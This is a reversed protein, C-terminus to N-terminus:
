IFGLSDLDNSYDLYSDPTEMAAFDTESFAASYEETPQDEFSQWDMEGFEGQVSNSNLDAIFVEEGYELGVETENPTWGAYPNTEADGIPIMIDDGAYIENADTIQPNLAMLDGISTNHAAAIESLTDGPQIHYSDAGLSEPGFGEFVHNSCYSVYDNPEALEVQDNSFFSHLTDGAATFSVSSGDVMQAEGSITDMNGDSDQDIMTVEYVGNQDSFQYSLHSAGDSVSDVEAATNAMDNNVLADGAEAETALETADQIEEEPSEPADYTSAEFVGKIEDSYVTGAAVGAAAAGAVGAAFLGASVGKNEEKSASKLDAATPGKPVSNSEKLPENSSSTSAGAGSDGGPQKTQEIKTQDDQMNKKRDSGSNFIVTKDQENENQPKNQDSM